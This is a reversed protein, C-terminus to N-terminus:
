LLWLLSYRVWTTWGRLGILGSIRTTGPATMIIPCEVYCYYHAMLTTPLPRLYYIIRFFLRGYYWLLETVYGPNKFTAPMAEVMDVRLLPYIKHEVIVRLGSPRLPSARRLRLNKLLIFDRFAKEICRLM